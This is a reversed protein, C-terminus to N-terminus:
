KSNSYQFSHAYEEHYMYMSFIYLYGNRIYILMISFPHNWKNLIVKQHLLEQRLPKVYQIVM